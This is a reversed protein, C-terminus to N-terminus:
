NTLFSIRRCQELIENTRQMFNKKLRRIKAFRKFHRLADIAGIDNIYKLYIM